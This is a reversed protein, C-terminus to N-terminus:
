STEEDLRVDSSEVDGCVRMVGMQYVISLREGKLTGTYTNKRAEKRKGPKLAHAWHMRLSKRQDLKGASGRRRRQQVDHRNRRRKSRVEAASSQIYQV